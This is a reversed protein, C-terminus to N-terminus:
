FVLGFRFCYIKWSIFKFVVYKDKYDKNFNSKLEYPVLFHPLRLDDPVCKYLLRKGLRGYTKNGNLLIVGPIHNERYYSRQISVNGDIIDIYDRTFLKNNVPSIRDLTENEIITNGTIPDIFHWKDYNNDDILIKYSM